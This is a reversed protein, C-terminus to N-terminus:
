QVGMSACLEKAGTCARCSSWYKCWATVNVEEDREPEPYYSFPEHSYRLLKLTKKREHTTKLVKNYSSYSLDGVLEGEDMKGVFRYDYGDLSYLFEIDGTKSDLKVNSLAAYYQIDCSGQYTRIMGFVHNNYRRLDLSYGDCHGTPSAEVTEFNAIKTMNRVVPVVPGPDAPLGFRHYVSPDVPADALVPIAFFVCGVFMLLRRRNM